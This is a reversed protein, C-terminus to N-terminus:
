GAGADGLEPYREPPIGLVAERAEAVVFLSGTALVLDDAAAEARAAALAAAVSPYAAGAVGARAFLSVIAAPDRSRPHRARGALVRSTVPALGAVLGVLDKDASAGLVLLLRRHPLYDRVADALRAAADANHAGDVVVMPAEALVELRGPWRVRALGAVVATAPLAVGEARLADCAALACAANELQHEGLLPLWGRIVGTPGAVQFEQGGRDFAGRQWAYAGAVDVVPAGRAAAAARIAALAAAPQPAVVVPRGAKVAHAKDWAIQEVTDGLLDTHDLSITTLVSLLPRPVVNTADLRAGVGAEVVQYACARAAFAVFAMATLVEFTTPWGHPSTGVGEVAPWVREVLETFDDPSCPERDVAIRERFSHLHPSTYLGVRYGAEVLASQLLAAVSGKGKTGVVHIAPVRLHPDGLAALLAEMRGLDRSARRAPHTSLREASTLGLLRHLAQRYQM